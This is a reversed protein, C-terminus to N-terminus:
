GEFDVDALILVLTEGSKEANLYLKLCVNVKVHVIVEESIHKNWKLFQVAVSTESMVYIGERNPYM